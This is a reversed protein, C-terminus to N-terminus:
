DWPIGGTGTWTTTNTASSTSTFGGNRVIVVRFPAAVPRPRRGSEVECKMFENYVNSLESFYRQKEEDDTRDPHHTLSLAHFRERVQKKLEAMRGQVKEFGQAMLVTDLSRTTVGLDAALQRTRPDNLKLM